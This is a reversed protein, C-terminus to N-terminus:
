READNTWYEFESIIFERNYPTDPINYGSGNGGCFLEGFDNVGCSIGTKSDYKFIEM